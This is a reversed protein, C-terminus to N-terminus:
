VGKRKELHETLWEELSLYRMTHIDFQKKGLLGKESAEKRVEQILRHMEESSLGWTRALALAGPLNRYEMLFRKITERRSGNMEAM